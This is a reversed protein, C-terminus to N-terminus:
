KETIEAAIVNADTEVLYKSRKELVFNCTGGDRTQLMFANLPPPIASKEM